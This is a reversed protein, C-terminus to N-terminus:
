NNDLLSVIGAVRSWMSELGRPSAETERWRVRSNTRLQFSAFGAPLTMTRSRAAVEIEGM